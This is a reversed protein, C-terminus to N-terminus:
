QSHHPHIIKNWYSPSFKWVVNPATVASEIHTLFDSRSIEAAGFSALHATKQQCDILGIDHSRCFGVMAALAIKSANPALAFMSEGFIARGICVCYLGGVLIGNVWTEISHAYGEAHLQVYADVMNPGIWTDYQGRRTIKACNEIVDVFATDFRVECEKDKIFRSITKRLSQHLRFNDIALTMRPDPSWWLIPQGNSFWPFVGISYAEILTSVDLNKGVALLGPVDSDSGWANEASPFADNSSLWPPAHAKM